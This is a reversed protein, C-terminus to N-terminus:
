DLKHRSTHRSVQRIHLCTRTGVSSAKADVVIGVLFEVETFFFDTVHYLLKPSGGEGELIKQILIKYANGLLLMGVCFVLFLGLVSPTM